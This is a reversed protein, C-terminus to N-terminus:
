GVHSDTNGLCRRHQREHQGGLEFFLILATLTM